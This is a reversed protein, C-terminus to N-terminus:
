RTLQPDQGSRMAFRTKEGETGPSEQFGLAGSVAQQEDNRNSKTWNCAVQCKHRDRLRQRATIAPEGCLRCTIGAVLAGPTLPMCLLARACGTTPPGPFHIGERGVSGM